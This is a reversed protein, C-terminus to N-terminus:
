DKTGSGGCTSCTVEGKGKCTTCKKKITGTGGCASCSEAGQGSVTTYGLGHCTDCKTETSGSGSCNKCKVTGKGSCTKCASSTKKEKWGAYLTLNGSTKASIKTISKTLKKDTYWGLFTYGSRTPNKLTVAKGYTYSSPNSKSNTGGNLVYKISYKGATWQAYLTVTGKNESTLNKVSAENKYSKGSGDKKTNWGAFTYDTKKFKNATLTYSSAYKCDTLDSMSGSTSGNGDFAITYKNPTWQAYLNVVADFKTSLNKVKAKNKYSKGSGDEKTNWGAFQYGTRKFVNATLKYSTGYELDYMDMDSETGSTSGNGFFLVHYINPTWQAYLTISDGETSSLNKVKKKDDYSKGSGDEKTNWGAFSYGKRKFSNATLKYSTDYKLKMSSMSGSTSGNGDFKITYQIPTWQAYLTFTTDEKESNYTFAGKDEYSYGSGDAKTNWGAFSYGKKKYVNEPVHYRTGVKGWQTSFSGSTSGNGDLYLYFRTYEESDSDAQVSVNATFIARVSLLMAAVILCATLKKLVNKMNRWVGKRM